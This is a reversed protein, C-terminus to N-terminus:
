SWTSVSEMMEELQDQYTPVIEEPLRYGVLIPIDRNSFGIVVILTRREPITGHTIGQDPDDSYVEHRRQVLWVTM